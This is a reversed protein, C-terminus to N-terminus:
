VLEPPQFDWVSTDEPGEGWSIELFSDKQAECSGPNSPLGQLEKAQFWTAGTEAEVIMHNDERQTHRYQVLVWGLLSMHIVDVFVRMGFLQLNQTSLNLVKVYRRQLPSVIWGVVHVLIKEVDLWQQKGLQNSFLTRLSLPLQFTAMFSGLSVTSLLRCQDVWLDMLPLYPYWICPKRM